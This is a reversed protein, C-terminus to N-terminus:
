VERSLLKKAQSICFVVDGERLLRQCIAKRSTADSSTMAAFFNKSKEAAGALSFSDSKM